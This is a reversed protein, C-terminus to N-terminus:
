LVLFFWATEQNLIGGYLLIILRDNIICIAKYVAYFLCKKSFHFYKLYKKQFFTNTNAITYYTYQRYAIDVYCSFLLWQFCSLNIRNKNDYIFFSTIVSYDLRDWHYRLQYWVILKITLWEILNNSRTHEKIILYFSYLGCVM